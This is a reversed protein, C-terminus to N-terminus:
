ITLGPEPASSKKIRAVLKQPMLKEVGDLCVQVFKTKTAEFVPQMQPSGIIPQGALLVLELQSRNLHLLHAFPDTPAPPPLLVLDAVGGEVIQGRGGERLHLLRAAGVTVLHFLSQPSLQGTAHATQLEALLDFEGSL